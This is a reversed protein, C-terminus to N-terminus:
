KWDSNSNKPLLKIKIKKLKRRCYNWFRNLEPNEYM